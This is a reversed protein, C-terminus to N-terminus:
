QWIVESAPFIPGDVCSRRKGNITEVVCSLCAGLGCAMRKELSVECYTDHNTAQEAVLRMLPEPGCVAVYDYPAEDALSGATLREEVPGTCFGAYGYSGDDTACLPEKQLLHQYKPLCVLAEKTQAGLVVDVVAGANVLEVALLHLPAAGVGGGVILAHTLMGDQLRRVGSWGNGIPGILETDVDHLEPMFCTLTGVQQYLIEITGEEPFTDYISFPRRLIHESKGPIKMHVFQGPLISQAIQPASLRMLYLRPGIHENGLIHATENILTM